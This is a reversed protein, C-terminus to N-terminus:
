GQGDMTLIVAHREGGEEDSLRAGRLVV